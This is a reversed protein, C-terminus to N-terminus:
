APQLLAIVLGPGGSTVADTETSNSPGPSRGGPLGSRLRMIGAVGNESSGYYIRKTAADWGLIEINEPVPRDSIASGIALANPGLAPCIAASFGLCISRCPRRGARTSRNRAGGSPEM